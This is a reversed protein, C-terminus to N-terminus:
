ANFYSGLSHPRPIPRVSVNSYIYLFCYLCIYSPEISEAEWTSIFGLFKSYNYKNVIDMLPIGGNVRPTSKMVLYSCGMCDKM